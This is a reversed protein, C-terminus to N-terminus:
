KGSLKNSINLSNNAEIHKHYVYHVFEFTKKTTELWCYKRCEIINNKTYEKSIDPNLVMKIIANEISKIILADFYFGNDKLFEPMPQKDSCSIPSGSAMSELLINPMNECTSAFIIGDCQQYFKSMETHKVHGHYFVFENQPDLESILHKIENWAPKFIIGGILDLQIPYGNDRLNHIASIVALHNKYKHIISPYLIRYPNSFSYESIHKVQKIGFKLDESLGHNIITLHKNTLDVQNEIINRAYDSIFIVGASKKFSLIQRKQSLWFRAVESRDNIDKWVSKDFLLMNRSMGVIPKFKGIYDGTLSFLIDCKNKVIRDFFFIQYLFRYILGKNLLPHTVKEIFNFDPIQNLTRKSSFVIVTDKHYDERLLALNSLIMILHVTGGGLGINTADIGIKM